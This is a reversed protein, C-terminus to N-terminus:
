VLVFIRADAKNPNPFHEPPNYAFGDASNYIFVDFLTSVTNKQYIGGVGKVTQVQLM